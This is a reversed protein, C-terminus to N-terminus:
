IENGNEDYDKLEITLYPGIMPEWEFELRDFKDKKCRKIMTKIFEKTLDSARYETIRTITM